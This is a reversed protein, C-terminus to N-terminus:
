HVHTPLYTETVQERDQLSDTGSLSVRRLVWWVFVRNIVAM